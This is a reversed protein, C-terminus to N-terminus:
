IENIIFRGKKFIFHRELRPVYHNWLVRTKLGTIKKFQEDPEITAKVYIYIEDNEDFKLNPFLVTASGMKKQIETKNVAENNVLWSEQNSLRNIHDSKFSRKDNVIVVFSYRVGFEFRNKVLETIESTVPSTLTTNLMLTNNSYEPSVPLFYIISAIGAGVLRIVYEYVM